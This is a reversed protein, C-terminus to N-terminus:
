ESDESEHVPVGCQVGRWFLQYDSQSQFPSNRLTGIRPTTLLFDRVHGRQRFPKNADPVLLIASQCARSCLTLVYSVNRPPGFQLVTNSHWYL